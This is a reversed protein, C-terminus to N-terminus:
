KAPRHSGFIQRLQPPLRLAKGEPTIAVIVVKLDALLKDDRYIGQKLTFSTNGCDTAETRVELLDGLRAPARYDIEIHRVVLILNHEALVQRHHYGLAHLLETRGREAFKLYNAHYVIGGADTDEYYIRIPWVFPHKPQEQAQSSM